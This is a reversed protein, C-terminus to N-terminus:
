ANNRNKWYLTARVLLASLLIIMAVSTLASKAATINSAAAITEPAVEAPNLRLMAAVKANEWLDTVTVGLSIVIMIQRIPAAVSRLLHWLSFGLMLGLLPPYIMDLRHQTTLYFQRGEPTLASLFAIAEEHSYGGPRMDFPRLGGAAESILPLSWGVMVLYLGLTAATLIWFSRRNFIM